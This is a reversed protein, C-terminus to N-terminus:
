AIPEGFMIRHGDITRVGFEQMGWPERQLPKCLEAGRATLELHYGVVDEVELYAFYSHDGLDRPAIADPCAGAMISCSDKAYFRWGPDGMEHVEFGLVDKYYRASAELDHVAIVFRSFRIM